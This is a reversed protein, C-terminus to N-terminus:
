TQYNNDIFELENKFLSKPNDVCWTDQNMSLSFQGVPLLVPKSMKQLRSDLRMAYCQVSQLDDLKGRMWSKM